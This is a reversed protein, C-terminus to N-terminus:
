INIEDITFLKLPQNKNNHKNYLNPHKKKPITWKMNDNFECLIEAEYQSNTYGIISNNYWILRWEM